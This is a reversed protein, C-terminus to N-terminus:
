LEALVDNLKSTAGALDGSDLLHAVDCLLDGLLSGRTATIDLKIRNLHVHLGLLNLNLPGLRLRLIRCTGAAKLPLAVKESGSQLLNGAADRAGGTFRGIAVISGNRFVFRNVAFTGTVTNGADDAASIGISKLPNKAAHAAPAAGAPAALLMTGLLAALLALTRRMSTTMSHGGTEDGRGERRAPIRMVLRPGRFGVAEPGLLGRVLGAALASIDPRATARAGTRSPRSRGTTRSCRSAPTVPSPSRPPRM